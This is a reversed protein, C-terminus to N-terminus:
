AIQEPEEKRKPQYVPTKGKLIQHISKIGVAAVGIFFLNFILHTGFGMQGLIGGCSCPIRGFVGSMSFIIYITFACLLCLSSLFSIKRLEPFVLMVAIILEILPVLWSLTIAMNYPFIQNLMEKRSTEYSSLKSLAAYTFLSGLLIACIASLRKGKIYYINIMSYLEQETLM